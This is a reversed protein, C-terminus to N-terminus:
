ASGAPRVTAAAHGLGRDDHGDWLRFRDDAM